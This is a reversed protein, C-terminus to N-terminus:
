LESGTQDSIPRDDSKTLRGPGGEAIGDLILSNPLGAPNWWTVSADDAVAVFAGGMGLARTGIVDFSQSFAHGHLCPLFLLSLFGVRRAMRHDLQSIM